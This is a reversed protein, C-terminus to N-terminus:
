EAKVLNQQKHEKAEETSKSNHEICTVAILDKSRLFINVVGWLLSIISFLIKIPHSLEL